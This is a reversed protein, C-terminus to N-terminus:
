GGASLAQLILGQPGTKSAQRLAVQRDGFAESGIWGTNPKKSTSKSNRPTPRPNYTGIIAKAKSERPKKSDIVIVRYAPKGKAGIRMLRLSMM